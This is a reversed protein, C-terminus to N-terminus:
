DQFFFLHKDGISKIAKVTENADTELTEVIAFLIHKLESFSHPKVLYCLAGMGIARDMEQSHSSTSIIIVPINKYRDEKKLIALCEWGNMVPMNIDLFILQPTNDHKDLKILLDEGNIAHRCLIMSNLESLAECFMESDDRDDDALYIIKQGM